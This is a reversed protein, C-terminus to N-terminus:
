IPLTPLVTKQIFNKLEEKKKILVLQSSFENWLKCGSTLLINAPDPLNLKAMSHSRSSRAPKLDDVTKSLPSDPHMYGDWVQSLAERAALQNLSPTSAADLLETLKVHDSRHHGTIMRAYDNIVVQVSKSRESVPDSEHLRVSHYHGAYIMVKGVLISEAVMRFPAKPIRSKLLRLMSLRRKCDAILKDVYVDTSLRWDYVMGLIELTSDAEVNEGDVMLTAGSNKHGIVM